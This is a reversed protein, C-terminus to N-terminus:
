RNNTEVLSSNRKSAVWGEPGQSSCFQQWLCCTAATIRDVLLFDGECILQYKNGGILIGKVASRDKPGQSPCFKQLHCFTAATALRDV